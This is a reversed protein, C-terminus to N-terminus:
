QQLRWEEQVPFDVDFLEQMIYAVSAHITKTYSERVDILVGDCDFLIADIEDLLAVSDTRVLVVGTDVRTEVYEDAL